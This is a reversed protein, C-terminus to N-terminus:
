NSYFLVFTIASLLRLNPSIFVVKKELLIASLITCIHQFPITSFLLPLSWEAMNEEEEDYLSRQFIIQNSQPINHGGSNSKQRRFVDSGVNNGGCIEQPLPSFTIRQGQKAIPLKRYREIEDVIKNWCQDAIHDFSEDYGQNEYNYCNEIMDSSALLNSPASGVIPVRSDTASRNLKSRTIGDSSSIVISNNSRVKRIASEENTDGESEDDINNCSASKNHNTIKISNNIIDINNTANCNNNNNNNNNDSNNNNDVDVNNHYSRTQEEVTCSSDLSSVETSNSLPTSLSRPSQLTASEQM